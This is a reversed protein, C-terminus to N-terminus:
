AFGASPPDYCPPLRAFVLRARLAEVEAIPVDFFGTQADGLACLFVYNMMASLRRDSMRSWHV